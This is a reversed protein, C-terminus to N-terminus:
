SLKADKLLATLDKTAANLRLAVANKQEESLDFRADVFEYIKIADMFITKFIENKIDEQIKAM